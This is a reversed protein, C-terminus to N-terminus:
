KCVEEITKVEDGIYMDFAPKGLVLAHYKVGHKKMWARTVERDSEWRSSFLIIIHGEKHFQNVKNIVEKRPTRSAYDHGAKERTLTGDIDVGIVM